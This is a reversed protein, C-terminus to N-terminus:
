TTLINEGDYLFSLWIMWVEFWLYGYGSKIVEVLCSVQSVVGCLWVYFITVVLWTTTAVGLWMKIAVSGFM